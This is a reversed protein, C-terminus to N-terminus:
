ERNHIIYGVDNEVMNRFSRNMNQVVYKAVSGRFMVGDKDKEPLKLYENNENRLKSNIIKYM